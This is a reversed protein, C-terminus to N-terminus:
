MTDLFFPRDLDITQRYTQIQAGDISGFNMTVWKRKLNGTWWNRSIMARPECNEATSGVTIRMAPLAAGHRSPPWWHGPQTNRVGCPRCWIAGFHAMCFHSNCLDLSILLLAWIWIGLLSRFVMMTTCNIMYLTFIYIYLIYIIYVYVYVYKWYGPSYKSPQFSYLLQLGTDLRNRCWLGICTSLLKPHSDVPLSWKFTVCWNVKGTPDCVIGYCVQCSIINKLGM